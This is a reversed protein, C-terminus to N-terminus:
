YKFKIVAYVWKLVCKVSQTNDNHKNNWNCCILEM